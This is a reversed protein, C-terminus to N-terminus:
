KEEKEENKRERKVGKKRERVQKAEKYKRM